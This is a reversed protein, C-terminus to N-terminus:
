LKLIDVMLNTPDVISKHPNYLDVFRITSKYYSISSIHAFYQCRDNRKKKKKKKKKKDSTVLLM